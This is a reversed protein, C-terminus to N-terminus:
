ILFIGFSNMKFLVLGVANAVYDHDVLDEKRDASYFFLLYRHDDM